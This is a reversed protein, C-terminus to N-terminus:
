RRFPSNSSAVHRAVTPERVQGRLNDLPSIGRSLQKPSVERTGNRRGVGCAVFVLERTCCSRRSQLADVTERGQRLASERSGDFLRCRPQM